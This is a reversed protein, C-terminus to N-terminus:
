TGNGATRVYQRARPALKEVRAALTDLDDRLSELARSFGQADPKAVLFDARDRVFAGLRAVSEAGTQQLRQRLVHGLRVLRHAAIDGVVRALDAEVDWDLNRFVFNLAEAFEVNGSIRAERWPNPADQRFLDGLLQRPTDAPFDIHVAATDDPAFAHTAFDGHGTVVLGLRLEGLAIGVTEGAFPALRTRAWCAQALLHNLAPILAPYLISALLPFM